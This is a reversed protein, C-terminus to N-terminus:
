GASTSCNRCVWGFTWSACTCRWDTHLGTFSHFCLNVRPSNTRCWSSLFLSVNLVASLASCHVYYNNFLVALCYICSYLLVFICSFADCSYSFFTLMFTRMFCIYRPEFRHSCPVCRNLILDIDREPQQLLPHVYPLPTTHRYWASPLVPSCHLPSWLMSCPCLLVISKNDHVKYHWLFISLVIDAGYWPSQIVASRNNTKRQESKENWPGVSRSM